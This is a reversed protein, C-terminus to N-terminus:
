HYMTFFFFFAHHVVPFRTIWNSFVTQATVKEIFSLLLFLLCFSPSLSSFFYPLSGWPHALTHFLSCQCGFHSCSIFTPCMPDSPPAPSAPCLEQHTPCGQCKVSGVVLPAVDSPADKVTDPAPTCPWEHEVPPLCCLRERPSGTLQGPYIITLHLLHLIM